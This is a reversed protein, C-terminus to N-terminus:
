DQLWAIQFVNSSMSELLRLKVDESRDSRTEDLYSSAPNWIGYSIVVRMVSLDSPTGLFFPISESNVAAARVGRLLKLHRVATGGRRFLPMSLECVISEEHFALSM